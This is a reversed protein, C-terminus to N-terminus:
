VNYYPLNCLALFFHCYKCIAPCFCCQCDAQPNLWRACVAYFVGCVPVRHPKRKVYNRSNKTDGWHCFCELVIERSQLASNEFKIANSVM